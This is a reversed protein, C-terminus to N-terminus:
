LDTDRRGTLSINPQLELILKSFADIKVAAAKSLHTLFGYIM